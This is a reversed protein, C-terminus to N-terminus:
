GEIQRFFLDSVARFDEPASWMLPHDGRPNLYVRCDPIQEFMRALQLPADPLFSDRKSATLLIPCDIEGLRGSFWDGGEEAFRLIMRTDADIVARWDEGHAFEWFRAQDPTPDRRELLVNRCAMQPTFTDVCSDAVVGQVSEPHEIATLLAVAGGGSAGMLWGYDYGLHNILASVQHAAQEWWDEPWEPLRDSLGTGPFDLAAVHFRDSFYELEGQHCISSATNGPLIVLLPGEGACRYYIQHGQCTFEPM